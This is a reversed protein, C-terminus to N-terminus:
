HIFIFSVFSPFAVALGTIYYLNITWSYFLIGLFLASSSMMFDKLNPFCNKWSTFLFLCLSFSFLSITLYGHLSFLSSFFSLRFATRFYYSCMVKTKLLFIPYSFFFFFFFFSLKFFKLLYFCDCIFSFSFKYTM